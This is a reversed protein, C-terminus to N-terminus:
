SVGEMIEVARRFVEEPSVGRMCIMDSCTRKMCPAKPCVASAVVHARQFYPGTKAPDTPGFVAVLPTGLADAIHLAGTDPVVILDVRAILAILEALSTRGALNVAGGIRREIEAADAAASRAGVIFVTGGFRELLMEGARAFHEAPWNKSPWRAGPSLAFFPRKLARGPGEILRAVSAKAPNSVSLSFSPESSDFGLVEGVRLYRDVAHVAAGVPAVDTYFFRAGERADSLGVRRAAGTARSWLASRLLGQLDVVLDFRSAALRNLLDFQVGLLRAPGGPRRKFYILADLGANSEILPGASVEVLWSIRSDPFKERLKALVPLGHVVDGISSPKIILINESVGRVRHSYPM